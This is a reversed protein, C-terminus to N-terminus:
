SSFHGSTWKTITAWDIVFGLADLWTLNYGASAQGCSNARRFQTVTQYHAFTPNTTTTELM